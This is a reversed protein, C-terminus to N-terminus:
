EVDLLIRPLQVVQGVIGGVGLMQLAQALRKELPAVGQIVLRIGHPLREPSSVPLLNLRLWLGVLTLHALAQARAFACLSVAEHEAGGALPHGGETELWSEMARYVYAVAESEDGFGVYDPLTDPFRKRGLMYDPVFPNVDLAEQLRQNAM